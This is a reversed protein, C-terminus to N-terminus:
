GTRRAPTAVAGGKGSSLLAIISEAPQPKGLGYGQGENCGLLHLLEIQEATELGEANTRIGLNGALAIVAQVIAVAEEDHPIGTVFSRDIKIKGIPFKRLYSLSSYGTGFDDLAFGIGRRGIEDMTARIAGNEQIFLSETIELELRRAPLGSRALADDVAAVIDGRMFQVPSVNVAVKIDRPWRAVETCAQCLVWAGLAEMIGIEEAVPVFEAPSVFGREAHRWRLLAEVGTLRRDVLDFQPQYFVEFERRAFADRLDVELKQRAQLAADMSPEFFRHCGGGDRKARYLATDANKMITALDQHGDGGAAIGISVGVALRHGSIEYPESLSAILRDAIKGIQEADLPETWIVAFEDGGFRALVHPLQVTELGRRAVAHLLLDGVGHGFTDNVTKFRDLDFYLVAWSDQRAAAAIVDALREMFANRNPLGTLTDFRALYALRKEALRRETIDRFTLCAAFRDQAARGDVSIGGDLRSPTVVYELTREGAGPLHLSLERPHQDPWQGECASAMTEKVVKALAAPVLEDLPRGEFPAVATPRFTQVASRSASHIQGAHDVVVIGDFNDSIIQDLLTRTNRAETSSIALLIRRLGIEAATTLVAACLFMAHWASTDVALPRLMQLGAAATEVAIAAAFLGALRVKWDLRRAALVLAGIVALGAFTMPLGTQALARGQLLTEAAVAQLLVGPIIGQAPVQFYDRLEIATAGIIVKKGAIRAGDAKDRLLDIASVRDIAGGDISFDIAFAGSRQPSGALLAPISSVSEAEIIEGYPYRRVRGDPDPQVNVSAPWSADRFRELPRNAALRHDAGDASLRQNFAPLIVSGGARLAAELVADDMENSRTSFDVDFAVEDAGHRTLAEILNAHIRRPWPWEGMAAISKADIDVLVITGTPPRPAATFRLEEIRNKLLDLYGAEWSLGTLIGILAVSLAYRFV